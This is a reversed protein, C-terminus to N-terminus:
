PKGWDALGLMGKVSSSDALRLVASADERKTGRQMAARYAACFAKRNSADTIKLADPITTSDPWIERWGGAALLGAFM